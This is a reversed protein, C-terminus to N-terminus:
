AMSNGVLRNGAWQTCGIEKWEPGVPRVDGRQCLGSPWDRQESLVNRRKRWFWSNKSNFGDLNGSLWDDRPHVHGSISGNVVLLYRYFGDQRSRGRLRCLHSKHGTMIWVRCEIALGQWSEVFDPSVRGEIYRITVKEISLDATVQVAGDSWHLIAWELDKENWHWSWVAVLNLSSLSVILEGIAALLLLVFLSKRLTFFVFFFLFLEM